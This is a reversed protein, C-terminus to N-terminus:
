DGPKLQGRQLQVSSRKGERFRSSVLAFSGSPNAALFRMLKGQRSGNEGLAEDASGPVVSPASFTRGADRSVVLGLGRPAEDGESEQWAVFVNGGAVSLSPFSASTSSSRSLDRPGEFAGAGALRRTYRVRSAGFPGDSSEDYVLHVIGDNGVAIKPADCHGEADVVVAAPAFTRGGDRSTTLRIDASADEGVTWALYVTGGRGAALSPGRAPKASGAGVAVPASFGVGGDTSRSLWLTGGYETWAALLTGDEARVLDLSGNDWRDATLRGKGDGGESKSLNIPAEFSRGGDMSRSFFIDGGHSGGSFVIEQWSAFVQEGAIVLRPLWSFVDPSRSVNVPSALRARGASDYVQVFVNKRQNDAWAIALRGDDSLAVTPDDVYHLESDNQRWPGARAPGSAVEVVPHWSALRAAALESESRAPNSVGSKCAAVVLAACSLRVTASWSFAM